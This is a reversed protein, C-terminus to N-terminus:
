LATHSDCGRFSKFHPFSLSFASDSPHLVPLNSSSASQVLHCAVRLRSRELDTWWQAEVEATIAELLLTDLAEGYIAAVLRSLVADKLAQEESDGDFSRSAYRGALRNDNELEQLYNLIDRTRSPSFPSSLSLFLSRLVDVTSSHSPKPSAQSIKWQSPSSSLILNDTIHSISM